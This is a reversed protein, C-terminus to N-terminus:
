AAAHPDGEPATVAQLAAVAATATRATEISLDSHEILRAHSQHETEWARRWMEALAAQQDLRGQWVEREDQVTRRPLLHGRLVALAVLAVIGWGSPELVQVGFIM